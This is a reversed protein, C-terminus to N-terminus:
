HLSEAGTMEGRIRGVFTPATVECLLYSFSVPHLGQWFACPSAARVAGKKVSGWLLKIGCKGLALCPGSQTM